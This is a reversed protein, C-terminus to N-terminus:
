WGLHTFGAWGALDDAKILPVRAALRPPMDAPAARGPDLMWLQAARLAQGPPMGDRNMHHHAMYMLLSTAEDPVPWLSGLVSRTGAVLFATALSYAEDYGRGSVNTRCAALVVLELGAYRGASETLEEAALRGGALALYASHREGQEVVGHCALHLTGGRRRALWGTVAAPTGTRHDMRDGGPHFVRHIADAEEGAHRLDGTPDGVVLAQGPGAPPRAAVECLLRASPAYSVLADECAYRARGRRGGARAAHWPVMGLAGMPVLVLSPVRGPRRPLQALLPGTVAEGAWDCLRELAARAQDPAPPAPVPAPGHGPPPGGADRGPAGAAQYATLAPADLTLGPLPVPRVAGDPLVLLATGPVAAGAQVYDGAPVLYALASAGLTRLAAAIEAVPPTEILRRRYPSAGLADLVRRRLRTSPGSLGPDAALGGPDLPDPPPAGAARWEEALEPRGLEDLMRPVTAAVTAAHLVLGRGADLARVADEHAGDALCWRAAELAAEAAERGVQAAYATGSQLLVNWAIGPLAEVAIRRAEDRDRRGARADTLARYDGRMRLARALQRGTAAWQPHEPGRAILLVHRLWSIGQDLGDMRQTLSALMLHGVGLAGAYRVWREDDPELLYVADELLALGDGLARTDRVSGALMIRGMGAQGLTTIRADEPLEATERRVEAVPRPTAASGVAGGLAALAGRFGELSSRSDVLGPTDPPIRALAAEMAAVAEALATPDERRAAQTARLGAVDLAFVARARPDAAATPAAYELDRIAAEFDAEGGRTQALQARVAAYATDVAERGPGPAVGARAQELRALQRELEARDSGQAPSMASLAVTVARWQPDAPGHALAADLLEQEQEPTAYQRHVGLLTLLTLAYGAFEGSAPTGPPLARWDAYVRPFVDDVDPCGVHDRILAVLQPLEVLGGGWRRKVEELLLRLDYDPTQTM